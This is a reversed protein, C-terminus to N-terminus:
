LGEGEDDGFELSGGPMKAPAAKYDPAHYVLELGFKAQFIASISAAARIAEVPPFRRGM